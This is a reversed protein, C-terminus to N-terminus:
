AAKDENWIRNFTIGLELCIAQITPKFSCDGKMANYLTGTTIGIKRCIVTKAREDKNVAETLAVHDYKNNM